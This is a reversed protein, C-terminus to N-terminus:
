ADAVVDYHTVRFERDVLFRDDEPYFVALDIEDGAFGRIADLSDWFSLVLFECRGDIERRLIRAGRNGPTSRYAAIGTQEVYRVYDGADDISTWGRWIRAIVEDRRRV